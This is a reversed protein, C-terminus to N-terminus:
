RAALEFLGILRYGHAAANAPSLYLYPTHALQVLQSAVLWLGLLRFALIAVNRETM